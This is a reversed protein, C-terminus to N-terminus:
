ILVPLVAQEWSGKWAKFLTLKLMLRVQAGEGARILSIVDPLNSFGNPAEAAFDPQNFRIRCNTALNMWYHRYADLHNTPMWSIDTSKYKSMRKFIRCYGTSKIILTYIWNQKTIQWLWIQTDKPNQTVQSFLKRFVMLIENSSHFLLQIVQKTPGLQLSYDMFEKSIYNKSIPIYNFKLWDLLM